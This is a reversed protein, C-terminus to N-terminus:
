PAGSFPRQGACLLLQNPGQWHTNSKYIQLQTKIEDWAAQQQIASLPALIEILPSASTRLFSVYADVSPAYFPANIRQVQVDVFGANRFLTALLTPDGLSMITGPQTAGDPQASHGAHRHAIALPMTLLPNFIPADFVLASFWAGPLLVTYIEHLAHAPETCFMLGLRCVAANFREGALVQGLAHADAVHVEVHAFGARRANEYAYAVLRPAIDTALVRGHVGVRQAIDLTQDGAGAAVDLVYAGPATHAADLMSQTAERLWGRILASNHNWGAAVHDWHTSAPKM